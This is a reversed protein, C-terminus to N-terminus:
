ILSSFDPFIMRNFFHLFVFVCCFMLFLYAPGSQIELSSLRHVQANYEGLSTLLDGASAVDVPVTKLRPLPEQISAVDVPVTPLFPTSQSAASVLNVKKKKTSHFTATYAVGDVNKRKLDEISSQLDAPGFYRRIDIM